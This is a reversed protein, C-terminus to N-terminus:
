ISRHFEWGLEICIKQWVKDMEYLKERSKLLPFCVLFEKKNLIKCFKNLVYSYSLFNKRWTPCHKMFPTQIARFMDRLQEETEPTLRPPPIGNLRNIIHPIHEYYKNMGLKKLIERLKSHKLNSINTRREKKFELLIRDYVDQPIDTTEKAQFQALWENFHNIKRYNFYATDKNHEKVGPLDIDVLVTDEWGCHECFIIADSSIITAEKGCEPCERVTKDQKRYHIPVYDEYINSSYKEYLDSKKMFDVEMDHFRKRANKKFSDTDESMKPKSKNILDLINTSGSKKEYKSNKELEDTKDTLDFYRMLLDGNDLYYQTLGSMDLSKTQKQHISVMTERSQSATSNRVQRIRFGKGTKEM